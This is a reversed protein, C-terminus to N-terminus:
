MFEGVWLEPGWLVQRDVGNAGRLSASSWSRASRVASSTPLTSWAPRLARM